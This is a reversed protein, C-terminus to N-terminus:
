YRGTGLGVSRFWEITQRLGAHLSTEARWGLLQEALAPEAVWCRTDWDRAAHTGWSPKPGIALLERALDVIEGITSQRGTGVNLVTGRPLDEATAVAIFAECVDDVYVFDRGTAPDVLPPLEDKMGRTVLTPVLRGPAGWPGYVSYLRLTCFHRDKERSAAQCYLSAAAKGVAYASTPELAESEKPAREKFGYESSSGAHVLSRAGSEVAADVLHVTGVANTEVARAAERQWSYAGHAALHFVWDPQTLALLDRVADRDLMDIAHLSVRGPAGRLRWADSGPRVVAHVPVGRAGLRRVLNAGVFGGAGTVLASTPPTPSRSM